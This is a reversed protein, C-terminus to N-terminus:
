PDGPLWWSYGSLVIKFYPGACISKVTARPLVIIHTVRKARAGDERRRDSGGVDWRARRASDCMRVYLLHAGAVPQPRHKAVEPAGARDGAGRRHRGGRRVAGLDIPGPAAALAVRTPGLPRVDRHAGRNERATGAGYRLRGQATAAVGAPPGHRRGSRSPVPRAGRRTAM